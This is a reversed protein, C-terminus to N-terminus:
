YLGVFIYVLAGAALFPGFPIKASYRNRIFSILGYVCGFFSGITVSAWCGIIGTFAGILFLLDFDGEGIGDYQKIKKFITNVCFLFGYGGLAGLVSDLLSLPLLQFASLFFAIPALYLTVYPSILMTESDSRITVILASILIFYSWFYIHPILLYLLSLLIATLLEILPYLVSIPKRCARCRGNLMLWSLVPINDYWHILAHCYPCFSRPAIISINNILRYALVNLFSGWCM